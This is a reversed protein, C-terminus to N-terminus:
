HCGRMQMLCTTEFFLISPERPIIGLTSKEDVSMYACVHVSVCVGCLCLCLVFLLHVRANGLAYSLLFSSQSKAQKSEKQM